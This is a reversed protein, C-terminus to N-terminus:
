HHSVLVRSSDLDIFIQNNGFRNNTSKDHQRFCSLFKNFRILNLKKSVYYTNLNLKTNIKCSCQGAQPERTSKPAIYMSMSM